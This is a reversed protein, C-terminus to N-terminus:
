LIHIIYYANFNPFIVCSFQDNTAYMRERNTFETDEVGHNKDMEDVTQIVYETEDDEIIVQYTNEKMCIREEM